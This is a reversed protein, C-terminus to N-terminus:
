YLFSTHKLEQAANRRLYLENDQLRITDTDKEKHASVHARVAQMTEVLLVKIKPTIQSQRM